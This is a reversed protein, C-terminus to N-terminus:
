YFTKRYKLLSAAQQANVADFQQGVVEGTHRKINKNKVNTISELM